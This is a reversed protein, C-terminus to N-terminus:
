LGGAYLKTLSMTKAKSLYSSGVLKKAYRVIDRCSLIKESVESFM